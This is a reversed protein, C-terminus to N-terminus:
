NDNKTFISLGLKSKIGQKRFDSACHLRLSDFIMCSGPKWQFMSHLSLGELWEPNLHTFYKEYVEKSIANTEALGDIRRYDYVCKNYYTPIDKSGKFFKSPGHFYHQDFFCLNSYETIEEDSDLRLPITIAKYINNPLEFLDDNHIIHPYNTFFFFGTTIDFDGIQMKIRNMIADVVPDSFYKHIDLTVPGTNKYVKKQNPDAGEGNDNEFLNILHDIENQSIFNDVLYPDSFSNKIRDIQPQTRM